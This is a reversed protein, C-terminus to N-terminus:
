MQIIISLILENMLDCLGQLQTKVALCQIIICFSQMQILEGHSIVQTGFPLNNLHMQFQQACHLLVYHEVCFHIGTSM